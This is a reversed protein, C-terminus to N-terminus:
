LEPSEGRDASVPSFLGGGQDYLGRRTVMSQMTQAVDAYSFASLPFFLIGSSISMGM